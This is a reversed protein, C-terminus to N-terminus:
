GSLNFSSCSETVSTTQTYGVCGALFFAMGGASFRAEIHYRAVLWTHVYGVVVLVRGRIGRLFCIGDWGDDGSHDNM